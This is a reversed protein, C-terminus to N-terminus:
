DDSQKLTEAVLGAIKLLESLPLANGGIITTASDGPFIVGAQSAIGNESLPEVVIAEVGNIEQTGIREQSVEFETYAFLSRSIFLRGAVGSEQLTSYEWRAAYVMDGCAIVGTNLSQEDLKYSDPLRLDLWLDGARADDVEVTYQDGCLEEYTVFKEPVQAGYPGIFVGLIEGEFKPKAAEENIVELPPPKPETKEEATVADWALRGGVSGIVAVFAVLVITLGKSLAPKM